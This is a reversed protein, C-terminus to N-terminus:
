NTAPVNPAYPALVAGQGLVNGGPVTSLNGAVRATAQNDSSAGSTPAATGNVDILKQTAAPDAERLEEVEGNAGASIIGPNRPVVMGAEAARKAVSSSSRVDELNRNLTEVENTLDREQTQLHQITFSQYTALGSFFMALAVGAILLPVVVASVTSFKKKAESGIAVRRGRVSVVQKSGLRGTGAPKPLTPTFRGVSRPPAVAGTPRTLTAAGMRASPNLGAALNRSADM